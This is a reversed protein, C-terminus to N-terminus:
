LEQGFYRIQLSYQLLSAKARRIASMNLWWPRKRYDLAQELWCVHLILTVVGLSIIILRPASHTCSDFVHKLNVSVVSVFFILSSFSILILLLLSLESFKAILLYKWKSALTTDSSLTVNISWNLFCHYTFTLWHFTQTFASHTHFSPLYVSHVVEFVFVCLFGVEKEYKFVQIRKCRSM